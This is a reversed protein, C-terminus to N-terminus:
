PHKKGKYVNKRPWISQLLCFFNRIIFQTKLVWNLNLKKVGNVPPLFHKSLGRCPDRFHYCKQSNKTIEKITQQLVHELKM